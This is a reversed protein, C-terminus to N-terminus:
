LSEPPFAEKLPPEIEAWYLIGTVPVGDHREEYFMGNYSSRYCVLAYNNRWSSGRHGDVWVLVEEGMPPLCEKIDFWKM